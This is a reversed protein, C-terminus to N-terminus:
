DIQEHNVVRLPTGCSLSAELVLPELPGGVRRARNLQHRLPLPSPSPLSRYSLDSSEMMIPALNLLQASPSWQQLLLPLRPWRRSLHYSDCHHVECAPASCAAKAQAPGVGGPRPCSNLRAFKNDAVTSANFVRTQKWFDAEIRKQRDGLACGSKPISFKQDLRKNRCTGM